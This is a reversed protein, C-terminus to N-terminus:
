GLTIAKIYNARLTSNIFLTQTHKKKMRNETEHLLLFIGSTDFM